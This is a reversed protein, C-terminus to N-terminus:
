VVGDTRIRVPDQGGGSRIRVLDPGWGRWTWILDPGRDTRIRTPYQSGGRRIWVLDPCVGGSGSQVKVWMRIRVLNQGCEWGGEAGGEQM